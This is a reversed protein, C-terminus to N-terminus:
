CPSEMPDCVRAGLAIGAHSRGRATTHINGGGHGEMLQLPMAEKVLGWLTLCSISLVSHHRATTISYFTMTNLSQTAFPRNWLVINLKIVLAVESMTM